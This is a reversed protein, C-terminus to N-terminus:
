RAVLDRNLHARVVQGAASDGPSGLLAGKYPASSLLCVFHFYSRRDFGHALFALDDLAVTLDHHDAFVGLM